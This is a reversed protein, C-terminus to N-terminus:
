LSFEATAATNAAASAWGREYRYADLRWQKMLDLALGFDGYNLRYLRSLDFPEGTDLSHILLRLTESEPLERNGHIKRLAVQLADM